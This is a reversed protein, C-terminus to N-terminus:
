LAAIRWVGTACCASLARRWMWKWMVAAQVGNTFCFPYEKPTWHRTASLERPLDKPLTDGRFYVIRGLEELPLRPTGNARDVVQGQVIDLSDPVAQLM